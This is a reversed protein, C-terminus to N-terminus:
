SSVRSRRQKYHVLPLRLTLSTTLSSLLVLAMFAMSLAAVVYPHVNRSSVKVVAKNLFQSYGAYCVLPAATVVCIERCVLFWPM